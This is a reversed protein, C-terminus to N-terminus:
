KRWFAPAFIVMLTYFELRGALMCFSLVWKALDPLGGYNKYPGVENLGPGVGFMASAVGSISTVIDVGCATLLLCAAFNILFAIYVLNLLSQIAGESIVRENFRIVFVGRREVMRRFERAVVRMLLVLRATKLGGSTSGTCGGAFMLALLLLQAFPAWQAFDTTSFGTCTMISVTQFLAYRAARSWTLSSSAYVTVTIIFAAAALLLLYSRIEVDKLVVRPQRQVLLRYHQTFNVGAAIMFFVIILEIAPSQFAEISINRTSFGGTAVTSFTHCLADFPGMGALRLATYEAVSLAVYIKWLSVATEAIRPKLKESRAGSFEARYLEMGGMGILPLVAIMLVIIGMGGLWHTLARWLLLSRPLAEVDAVVSAGTTSFGSISEFLADTLTPFYGSFYYPLAGLFSALLWSAVVLLIGERHSLEHLTARFALVLLGGLVIDVVLAGALPPLGHDGAAWAYALPISLAAALFLTLFGLLRLISAWHIM